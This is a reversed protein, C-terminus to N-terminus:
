ALHEGLQLPVTRELLGNVLWQQGIRLPQKYAITTGAVDGGAEGLQIQLQGM